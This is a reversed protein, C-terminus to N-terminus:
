QSTAMLQKPQPILVPPKLVSLPQRNEPVMENGQHCGVCARRENPRLNIWSSPGNVIKGSTDLTQIQFPTDAKIELYVSGDSEVDVVGLSSELGLVEIKVAKEKNIFLSDQHFGIFNIDQCLLLGTEESMKVESPIKKPMNRLEVAVAELIQYQDDKFVLKGFSSNKYDFEYLGYNESEAAKYCVLLKGNNLPSVGSFDGAMEGNISKKSNMPNNYALTFLEDKGEENKELLIIQGEATERGKAILHDKEQSKYFLTEKTGDPRMVMLKLNDPGSNFQHNMAMIRGDHLITSGFYSGPSYTIQQQQSGDIHMVMLAHGKYSSERDSSRSFAIREGPLYIPDTCNETSNTLQTYRLSGLDMEYIQWIDANSKQGAFVMKHADFSIDPACASYFDDTLPLASITESKPNIALIKARKLFGRHTLSKFESAQQKNHIVTILISGKTSTENCSTLSHGIASVLIIFIFFSQLGKFM